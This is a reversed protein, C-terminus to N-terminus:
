CHFTLPGPKWALEPVTKVASVREQGGASGTTVWPGATYSEEKNKWVRHAQM